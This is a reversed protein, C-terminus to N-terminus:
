IELGIVGGGIYENGQVFQGLIAEQGNYVRGDQTPPTTRITIM